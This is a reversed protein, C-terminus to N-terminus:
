DFDMIAAEIEDIQKKLCVRTIKNDVDDVLKLAIKLRIEVREAREAREAKTSSEEIVKQEPSDIGIKKQLSCHDSLYHISDMDDPVLGDYTYAYRKGNCDELIFCHGFGGYRIPYEGRGIYALEKGKVTLFRDNIIAERLDIQGTNKIEDM